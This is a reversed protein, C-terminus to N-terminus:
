VTSSISESWAECVVALRTKADGDAGAAVGRGPHFQLAIAVWAVRDLSLAQRVGLPREIRFFMGRRTVPGARTTFLHSAM